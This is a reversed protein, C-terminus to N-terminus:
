NYATHLYHLTFLYIEGMCRISFRIKESLTSLPCSVPQLIIELIVSSGSYYHIGMSLGVM